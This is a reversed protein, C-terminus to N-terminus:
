GTKTQIRWRRLQTSPVLMTTLNESNPYKRMGSKPSTPKLTMAQGLTSM